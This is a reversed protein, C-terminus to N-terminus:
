NSAARRRQILAASAGCSKSSLLASFRCSLLFEARLSPAATEGQAVHAAALLGAAKLALKRSSLSGSLRAGYVALM